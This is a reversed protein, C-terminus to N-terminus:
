PSTTPSAPSAPPIAATSTENVQLDKFFLRLEDKRDLKILVALVLRKAVGNYAVLFAERAAVLAATAQITKGTSAGKDGIASALESQATELRTKWKNGDPLNTNAPAAFGRLVLAAFQNLDAPKLTSLPGRNGGPFFAEVDYGQDEDLSEVHHHFKELTKRVVACKSSVEQRDARVGSRKIGQKELETAVDTMATTVYAGLAGIDVLPTKGALAPVEKVFHEGYELCELYDIHDDAM